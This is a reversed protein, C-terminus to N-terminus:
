ISLTASFFHCRRINSPREKPNSYPDNLANFNANSARCQYDFLDCRLGEVGFYGFPRIVYAVLKVILRVYPFSKMRTRATM